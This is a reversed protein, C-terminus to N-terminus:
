ATIFNYYWLFLIHIYKFQSCYKKEKKECKVKFSLSSFLRIFLVNEFPDEMLFIIANWRLPRYIYIYKGSYCLIFWSSTARLILDQTQTFFEHNIENEIMINVVHKMEILRGCFIKDDNRKRESNNLIKCEYLHINNMDAGCKCKETVPQRGPFNYELKNMRSRFSFFVKQDQLTLLSNPCLYSRCQLTSGFIIEKGKSKIKSFLYSLAVNRVKAHVIKKFANQQDSIRLHCKYTLVQYLWRKKYKGGLWGKITPQMSGYFVKVHKLGSKYINKFINKQM